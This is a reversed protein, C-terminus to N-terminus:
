PSALRALADGTLRFTTWEDMPGAGLKRYFDIAPQNWDLVAWEMRRCGEDVARRAMRRLLAGGIGRRRHEPRVFFDELYLSPACAFTSFTFFFLAFAVTEGGVDALLVEARPVAGFLQEGLADPSAACAHRLKEYDALEEILRTIRAADAPGAPRIVFPADSRREIM